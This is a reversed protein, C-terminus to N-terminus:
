NRLIARAAARVKSAPQAPEKVGATGQRERVIDITIPRYPLRSLVCRRIRPRRYTQRVNDQEVRQRRRAKALEYRTVVSPIHQRAYSTAMCYNVGNGKEDKKAATLAM